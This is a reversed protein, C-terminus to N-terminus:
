LKGERQKCVALHNAKKVEKLTGDTRIIKYIAYAPILFMPVGAIFWGLVEAWIPYRKKEYTIGKEPYKILSFM